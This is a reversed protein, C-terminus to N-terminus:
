GQQNMADIVKLLRIEDVEWNYKSAIAKRGNEGYSIESSHVEIVARAFDSANGSRFVVGCEEEIVIRQMPPANSAIVPLGMSMYDFIKNPITTAVHDSVLHPIIGIKSSRIYKAIESHDVRGIWLVYQDIGRDRIVTRLSNAAYGGGIVVFLFAPIKEVIIPMADIVTQLGRGMQIGGIYIASYRMKIMKLAENTTPQEVRFFEATPTNGVVTICDRRAGGRLAVKIAEEVVVLVHDMRRLAYKEVLMAFAPNRVVLNIGHFKRKRWIDRVMSVYDEAMDFVVKVHNRKGAWVGTIALPLDRVIILDIRNELVLDDIFKQWIPSFFVPFSFMYNLTSNKWFSLRHVHLGGLIEHCPRKQLNRSAVHVTHDHRILSNCIKEVRIDWPYDSDWIYLVNM